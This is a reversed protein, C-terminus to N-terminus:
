FTRNNSESNRVLHQPSALRHIIKKKAVECTPKLYRKGYATTALDTVLCM